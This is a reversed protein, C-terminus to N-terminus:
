VNFVRNFNIIIFIEFKGRTNIENGANRNNEDQGGLGSSTTSSNSVKTNVENTKRMVVKDVDENDDVVGVNDDEDDDEDEGTEVGDDQDDDDDVNNAVVVSDVRQWGNGGGGVSNSNTCDDSTNSIGANNSNSSSISSNNNNTNGTSVNSNGILVGASQASTLVDKHYSNHRNRTTIASCADSNTSQLMTTTQAGPFTAHRKHRGKSKPFAVLINLWWKSEEPCTGKVFTVRDSATIAISNMHGTVDEATTVELVKTMDISAQPM